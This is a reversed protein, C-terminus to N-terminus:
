QKKRKRKEDLALQRQIWDVAARISPLAGNAYNDGIQALSELGEREKKTM